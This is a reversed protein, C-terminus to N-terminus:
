QDRGRSALSIADAGGGNGIAESKLGDSKVCHAFYTYTIM